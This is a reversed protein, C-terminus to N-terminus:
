SVIGTGNQYLGRTIRKGSFVPASTSEGYVPLPDNSLFDAQSTYSEETTFVRIGAQEEM